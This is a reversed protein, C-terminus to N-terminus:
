KWSVYWGRIVGRFETDYGLEKLEQQVKRPITNTIKIRKVPSKSLKWHDFAKVVEERSMEIEIKEQREIHESTMDKTESLSPIQGRLQNDSSNTNESEM